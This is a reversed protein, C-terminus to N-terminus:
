KNVSKRKKNGALRVYYSLPNKILKCTQDPFCVNFYKYYGQADCNPPPFSKNSFAYDVQTKILNEKLPPKNLNNWDMLIKEVEQRNKGISRMFNILIFTSRKRGDSVGNMITKICPPLYKIELPLNVEKFEKVEKKVEQEPEFSDYARVFLNLAENNRANLNFFDLKTDVNEPRASEIDFKDISHKDIPLSVLWKKENLSYQMRFMHRESILVTDIDIVSYPNFKNNKYLEEEPIKIQSLVKNIGYDKRIYERITDELENKLFISIIMPASPFLKNTDAGNVRKPFAEYPVLVHFGSGGSFKVSVTNIGESELKKVIMKTFEKSIELIKCDVDILLDWGKRLDDLEEKKLDKNIALPNYWREESVHFSTAGNRILSEVDSKYQFFMPRKGFSEGYRAACERDKANVLKELVDDRLYYKLIESPKM